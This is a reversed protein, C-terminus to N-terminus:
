RNEHAFLLAALELNPDTEAFDVRGALSPADEEIMPEAHASAQAVVVPMTVHALPAFTAPTDDAISRIYEIKAETAARTTELSAATFALQDRIESVEAASLPSPYPPLNAYPDDAPAGVPDIGFGSALSTGIVGGFGAPSFATVALVAAAVGTLGSKVITDRVERGYSQEEAM